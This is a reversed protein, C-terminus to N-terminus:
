LPVVEPKLIERRILKGERFISVLDAEGDGDMDQERRSLVAKGGISEFTEFTDAFGRGTKDIEIHIVTERGDVLGYQTWVDPRGDRDTDERAKHRRGKQYDIVLDVTGDNDVDHRERELYRGAYEYFADVVDDHDRDLTRETQLGAAYTEFIDPRSDNNSDLERAVLLGGEYKMVADMRGDYNRDEEQRLWLDTKRDLYRVVEPDGDQDADLDLRTVKRKRDNGFDKSGAPITISTERFIARPLDRIEPIQPALRPDSRGDDFEREAIAHAGLLDRSDATENRRRRELMESQMEMEGAIAQQLSAERARRQSAESRELARRQQDLGAQRAAEAQEQRRAADEELRKAEEIQQFLAADEAVLRDTGAENAASPAALGLALWFLAIRLRRLAEHFPAPHLPDRRSSRAFIM